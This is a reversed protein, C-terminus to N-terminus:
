VLNRTQSGNGLEYAKMVKSNMAPGKIKAVKIAQEIRKAVIVLNTFHQAPSRILFEYYPTKFTNTFLNAMKKELPPPDMQTAVRFWRQTYKRISERDSMEM